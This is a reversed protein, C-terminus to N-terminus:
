ERLQDDEFVEALKKLEASDPFRNLGVTLLNHADELDKEADERKKQGIRAFLTRVGLAYAAEFEYHEGDLAAYAADVASDYDGSLACMRGFHYWVFSHKRAHKLADDLLARGEDYRNQLCYLSLLNGYPEDYGTDKSISKKLTREALEFEDMTRFANGVLNLETATLEYERMLNQLEDKTLQNTVIRVQYESPLRKKRFLNM